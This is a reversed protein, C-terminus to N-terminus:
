IDGTSDKYTILISNLIRFDLEMYVYSGRPHLVLSNLTVCKCTPLCRISSFFNHMTYNGAADHFLM